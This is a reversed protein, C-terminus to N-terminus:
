SIGLYEELADKIAKSFLDSKQSLNELDKAYNIYGLEILYPEATQNSNYYKNNGQDENRGDVYAYTNIGGVERIMFMYPSGVKINYTKLNKQLLEKRYDEIDSNTFSDFSIGHDVRDTQKKSYGVIKSINDAILSSLKYNVDNPIYVEVGGYTSKVDLSNLHLSLSYKSKVENPIVARGDDGFNSLAVDSERTLKVKLGLDELDSKLIKAIKLALESETYVKGNLKYSAGPDIGGHGPDITIDYVNNPLNTPKINVSLYYKEKYTNFNIDIKNNQYNKTITYYTLDDYDTKNELSYYKEEDEVQEKVLLIFNGEKLEDLYIGENNKESTYFCTKDQNTFNSDLNLEEKKNKLVLSLEGNLKKNTCAKINLHTGFISYKEVYFTEDELDDLVKNISDKNYFYKYYCFVGMGVLLLFVLFKKM